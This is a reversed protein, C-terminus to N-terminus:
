PVADLGMQWFAIELRTADGFTRVLDELRGPGGRRAMLDDLHAAHGRSVEQYADGAYMEIWEAYPNGESVTNPDAALRQGIEGYGCVCPALAVALDLADGALGRELVFRTYALTADAEPAAAMEAETLGWEQCFRVHLGIEHDVIASLGAAAARVETLRDAKFAALGYARALHILFLYDQILYTRFAPEPLTGSALDRVFIHDVYAM